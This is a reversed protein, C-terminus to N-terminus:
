PTMRVWLHRLHIAPLGIRSHVSEHEATGADDDQEKSVLADADSWGPTGASCLDRIWGGILTFWHDFNQEQVYGILAASVHTAGHKGEKYRQIGGGIGTGTVVYEREDRGTGSPTPLRKCEIPLITEFDHYSRGEVVLSDGASAAILDVKRSSHTEDAEEVRFQLCDWGSTKRAASNLHACLQSTLGTENTKHPREPRDRWRPLQDLIFDLIATRSRGEEIVGPALHGLARSTSGDALM